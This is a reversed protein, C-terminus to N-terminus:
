PWVAPSIASYSTIDPPYQCALSSFNSKPVGSLAYPPLIRSASPRSRRRELAPRADPVVLLACAPLCDLVSMIGITCCAAPYAAYNICPAVALSVRLPDSFMTLRTPCSMRSEPSKIPRHSQDSVGTSNNYSCSRSSGAVDRCRPSARGHM